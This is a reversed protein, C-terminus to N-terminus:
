TLIATLLLLTVSLAVKAINQQKHAGISQNVLNFLAIRSALTIISSFGHFILMYSIQDDLAIAIVQHLLEVM